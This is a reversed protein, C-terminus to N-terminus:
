NLLLIIFKLEIRFIKLINLFIEDLDIMIQWFSPLIIQILRIVRIVHRKYFQLKNNKWTTLFDLPKCLLDKLNGKVKFSLILM